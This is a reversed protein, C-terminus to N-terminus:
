SLPEKGRTSLWTLHLRIGDPNLGMEHLDEKVPITNSEIYRAKHLPKLRDNIDRAAEAEGRMAAACLDRKDRPAVKATVYING